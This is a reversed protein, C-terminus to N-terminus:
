VWPFIGTKMYANNRLTIARSQEMADFIAPRLHEPCTNFLNIEISLLASVVFAETDTEGDLNELNRAFVDGVEDVIAKVAAQVSDAPEDNDTFFSHTVKVM